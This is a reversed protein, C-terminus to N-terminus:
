NKESATYKRIAFELNVMMNSSVYSKLQLFTTSYLLFSLRTLFLVKFKLFYSIKSLFSILTVRLWSVIGCLAQVNVSIKAANGSIQTTRFTEKSLKNRRWFCYQRQKQKAKIVGSSQYEYSSRHPINQFLSHHSTLDSMLKTQKAM